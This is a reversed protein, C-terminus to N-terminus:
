SASNIFVAVPHTGADLLQGDARLFGLIGVQLLDAYRETLRMITTGGAVKRYKYKTLDGFLISDANAAMVPMDNNVIYPHDLIMPQAGQGFSATLAPQWLPRNSGDVLKKLAKLTSDHFMFKANARYLPDVAHELDVLNNYSVSTAGGTTATVTNGAAVAATVIGNPESSGSGVTLKNNLLRGLREGLRDAVLANMDFVADQLLALPLLVIDSSFIYSSFVVQGFVLATNTVATNIGIIRGSNGTDNVTPYDIPNGSGTELVGVNGLIGGYFKLAVELTKELDTPILYGGGSTTLTQAANRIGQVYNSQLLAKDEPTVDNMGHALFNRFASAYATARDKQGGDISAISSAIRDPDVRALDSAVREAKEALKISDENASYATELNHFKEREESTLGRNNEAKATNVIETMQVSLRANAEKLQDAYKM